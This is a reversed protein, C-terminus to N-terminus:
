AIAGAPNITVSLAYDDRGYFLPSGDPRVADDDRFIRTSVDLRCLWSKHGPIPIRQGELLARAAEGAWKAQNRDAGIFNLSFYVAQRTRRGTLRATAVDGITSYYVLYPLKYPVLKRGESDLEAATIPSAKAGGDYVDIGSTRLVALVADDVARM